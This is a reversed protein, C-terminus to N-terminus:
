LWRGPSARRHGRAGARAETARNVREAGGTDPRLAAGPAIPALVRLAGPMVSASFWGAPYPDGDVQLAVPPEPMVSIRRGRLRLSRGSPVGSADPARAALLEFTARIGGLPGGARLVLLELLGDAPDLPIRPRLVGPVLDGCNAVLAAIGDTELEVGDVDIRFHITHLDGILRAAAAFYAGIGLRRKADKSTAAMVVADFGAGCAVTFRDGPDDPSAPRDGPHVTVAGIDITRPALTALVAAARGLARPIGLAAALLNGTGAPVLGLPVNSGALVRAAVRVTGDGGVVVVLPAGADRAASIAAELTLADTAEVVSPPRGTRATVASTILALLRARTAPDGIRSAAANAVICAPVDPASRPIM